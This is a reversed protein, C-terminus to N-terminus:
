RYLLMRGQKFNLKIASNFKLGPFKSSTLFTLFKGCIDNDSQKVLGYRHTCRILVVYTRVSCSFLREVPKWLTANHICVAWKKSPIFRVPPIGKTPHTSWRPTNPIVAPDNSTSPQSVSTSSVPINGQAPLTAKSTLAAPVPNDMPLAPMEPAPLNSNFPHHSYPLILGTSNWEKGEAELEFYSPQAWPKIMSRTRRVISNDPFMIWYSEPEKAPQNIVGTKWLNGHVEKMFAPQGPKLEMSYHSSTGPQRRMLEKCIKSSEVSKGISSPIQPLSTRPRCGTLAELPSPLNGAIPTVRYELLGYNWPKRDKVSKEM